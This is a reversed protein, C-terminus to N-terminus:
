SFVKTSAEFQLNSNEFYIEDEIKIDQRRPRNFLDYSSLPDKPCKWIFRHTKTVTVMSDAADEIFQSMAKDLQGIHRLPSTAQMLTLYDFYLGNKEAWYIFHMVASETTAHDGSIEPPRMYPVKAGYEEAINKIQQCDTSVFVADVCKASLAYEISWAILPKGNISKINKGPVGKSGCRAPIFAVNKMKSM